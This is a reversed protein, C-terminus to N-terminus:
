IILPKKKDDYEVKVTSSYFLVEAFDVVQQKTLARRIKNIASSHSITDLQIKMKEM